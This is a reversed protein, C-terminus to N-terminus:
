DKLGALLIGSGLLYLGLYSWRAIDRISGLCRDQQSVEESYRAYDDNIGQVFRLFSDYDDVAKARAFLENILKTKQDTKLTASYAVPMMESIAVKRAAERIKARRVDSTQVSLYENPLEAVFYLIENLLVSKDVIARESIALRLNSRSSDWRDYLFNQSCLSALPDPWWYSKAAKGTQKPSILRM